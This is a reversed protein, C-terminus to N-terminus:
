IDTPISLTIIHALHLIEGTTTKRNLYEPTLQHQQLPMYM